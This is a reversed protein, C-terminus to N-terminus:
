LARITLFVVHIQLRGPRLYYISQLSEIEREKLRRGYRNFALAQAGLFFAARDDILCNVTCTHPENGEVKLSKEIGCFCITQM